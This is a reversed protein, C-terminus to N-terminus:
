RSRSSGKFNMKKSIKPMRSSGMKHGGYRKGIEALNAQKRIKPNKSHEAKEIKKEPIKEGMPVGLSRHFGGPNKGFAEQMWMKKGRAM